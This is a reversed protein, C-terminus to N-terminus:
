ESKFLNIARIDDALERIVQAGEPDGDRERQEAVYQALRVAELRVESGTKHKRSM